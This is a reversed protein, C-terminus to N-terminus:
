QAKKLGIEKYIVDIQGMLKKPTLLDSAKPTFPTKMYSKMAQTLETHGDRPILLGNEQNVLESIGGVDSSIIALGATLAEGITCPLNEYRSFQVLCRTSRMREAVEEYNMSGHIELNEPPIDLEQQLETLADTPGDGGISLRATPHDTLIQHFARLIELPRKNADLVSLHMFDFSKKSGPTFLRDDVPNRWVHIKQTGFGSREMAQGLQTTVPLLVDVSRIALRKRLRETPRLKENREQLYGSWHESCLIPISQNKKISYLLDGIQHAIQAHVLEPVFREKELLSLGLSRGDRAYRWSIPGQGSRHTIHWGKFGYKETSECSVNKKATRNASFALLFIDHQEAILEFQRLIFNGLNPNEPNPFWPTLLLIKM